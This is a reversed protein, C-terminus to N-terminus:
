PAPTPCSGRGRPAARRRARQRHAVLQDDTFETSRAAALAAGRAITVQAMIQVFVPVPLTKELQWSFGDIDSDAGVVVVGGPRWGNRDFM